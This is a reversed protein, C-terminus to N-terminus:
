GNSYIASCERDYLYRAVPFLLSFIILNSGLSILSWIIGTVFRPWFPRFLWADVINVPLYFGFTCIISFISLQLILKIRSIGPRYISSFGAGAFGSVTMGLVQVLMMPLPAPGFPNFVTWLGMGVVAVAVGAAAGWVFGATFVIFFMLNVNPLFSTGWALVYILAAFLAIRTLVRPNITM